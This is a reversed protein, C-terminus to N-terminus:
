GGSPSGCRRRAPSVGSPPAPPRRWLLPATWGAPFRRGTRVPIAEILNHLSAHRGITISFRVDMRRCVAAAARTYFGSDARVTLQGSAGGYRVRSVTERLFHAAGCATNARGERRRSRLVGGTGAAIAPLPHYGRAGTCGHRRAGEKALGCTECVTSDLGITFPAGGPGDGAARARAPLERSVRDPQRVHGPRFSPLFAGPTSPVKATFGPVRATGGARMADAGDLASAARTMMKDGTNAWGPADGPDLHKRLLQPLGLRRALTSPLILGANAALRHGGFTIQVRGPHHRPLM